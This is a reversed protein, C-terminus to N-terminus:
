FLEWRTHTGNDQLFEVRVMYPPERTIWYTAAASSSPQVVVLAERLGWAGVDLSEKRVVDVPMWGIAPASTLGQVVALEAETGESLGLGNLLFGDSSWNFVAHDLYARVMRANAFPDSFEVGQVLDGDFDVHQVYRPAFRVDMHLPTLTAHDLVDARVYLGGQTDRWTVTREIVAHGDERQAVAVSDWITNIGPRKMGDAETVWQRWRATYSEIHAGSMEVDGPRIQTREASQASVPALGGLGMLLLTHLVFAPKNM